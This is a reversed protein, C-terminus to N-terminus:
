RPPSAPLPPRWLSLTLGPRHRRHTWQDTDEWQSSVSRAFCSVKSAMHWDKMLKLFVDQGVGCEELVPAYARVFGRDKNRPRRQPIIVPCPIRGVPVPAPGAMRVLERVMDQERRVKGEETDKSAAVAAESDEYSPPAVRAAMDDLEWAAEDDGAAESPDDGDESDDESDYDDEKDKYGYGAEKDKSGSTKESYYGPPADESRSGSAGARPVRQAM